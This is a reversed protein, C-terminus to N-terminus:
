PRFATMGVVRNTTFDFRKAQHLLNSAPLVADCIADQDSGDRWRMDKKKWKQIPYGEVTALNGM